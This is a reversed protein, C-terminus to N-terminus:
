QSTGSLSNAYLGAAVPLAGVFFGLCYNLNVLSGKSFPTEKNKFIIRDNKKNSNKIQRFRDLLDCNFTFM